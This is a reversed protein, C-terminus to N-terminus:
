RGQDHVQHPRTAPPPLPRRMCLQRCGVQMSGDMQGQDERLCNRAGVKVPAQWCSPPVTPYRLVSVGEGRCGELQPICLESRQRAHRGLIVVKGFRLSSGDSLVNAAYYLRARSNHLHRTVIAEQCVFLYM